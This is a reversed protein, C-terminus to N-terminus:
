RVAQGDPKMIGRLFKNKWLLNTRGFFIQEELAFKNKWLGSQSFIKV